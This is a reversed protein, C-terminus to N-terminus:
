IEKIMFYSKSNVGYVKFESRTYLSFAIKNEKYLSLRLFKIGKEKAKKELKELTKKGFGNGNFKESVCLGVWRQDEKEEVFDLHGYSIVENNLSGWMVCDLKNIYDLPRKEYFTFLDLSAGAGKLFGELISISKDELWNM